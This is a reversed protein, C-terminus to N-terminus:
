FFYKEARGVNRPIADQLAGNKQFGPKGRFFFTAYRKHLDGQIFRNMEPAFLANRGNM